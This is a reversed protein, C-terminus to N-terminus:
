PSVAKLGAPVFETVSAGPAAVITGDLMVWVPHRLPAVGQLPNSSVLILDAYFGARIAGLMTSQGLYAANHETAATLVDAPSFGAAVLYALEGHLGEGYRVLPADTGVVLRGGAAIMARVMPYKARTLSDAVPVTRGQLRLAADYEGFTADLFPRHARIAGVLAASVSDTSAVHEVGTAGDEIATRIEEETEAHVISPLGHAAAWRIGERLLPESLRTRARGITGYILKVADPHDARYDSDMAALMADARDAQVAGARSIAPSWITGVPHGAPSTILRGVTFLRPGLIRHGALAGRRRESDEAPGGVDRVSTVGAELYARRHSAYDTLIADVLSRIRFPEFMGDVPVALHTHVDILGPLLYGGHADIRPWSVTDHAADVLGSIVKGEVHVNQGDVVRSEGPIVIRSNVINLRTPAPAPWRYPDVARLYLFPAVVAAGLLAAEVTAIVRVLRGGRQAILYFALVPLYYWISTSLYIWWTGADRPAFRTGFAPYIIALCLLYLPISVGYGALFRGVGARRWDLVFTIPLWYAILFVLWSVITQLATWAGGARFQLVTVAPLPLVVLLTALLLFDRRSRPTL